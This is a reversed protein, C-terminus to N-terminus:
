QGLGAHTMLIQRNLDSHQVNGGHAIILRGLGASALHYCLPGGLGGCRSVLATAGKLKEQGAEGFGDVWIQWEYISREEDTLAVPHIHM